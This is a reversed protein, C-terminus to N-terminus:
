LARVRNENAPKAADEPLAAWNMWAYAFGRIALPPLSQGHKQAIRRLRRLEMQTGLAWAKAIDGESASSM